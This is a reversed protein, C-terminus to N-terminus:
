IKDDKAMKLWKIPKINKSEYYENIKLFVKSGFFGNSASLPSPHVTTFIKHKNTDILKSKGIAFNGMLLFATSPNTDSIYKILKDTFNSWLHQHSNSKSEIVTLASNLLLIKEKKVWNKLFGHTPIISEPYCNKIEKFINVLSPPIKKHKKPIGFSMGCAQPVKKYSKGQPDLKTKCTCECIESNIYPDQGILILKTEKPGFYYLTRLLDKSLPFITKGNTVDENVKDLIQIFEEKNSEFFSLWDPHLRKIVSDYEFNYEM